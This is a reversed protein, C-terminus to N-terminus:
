ERRWQGYSSECWDWHKSPKERWPMIDDTEKYPSDNNLKNIGIFDNVQKRKIGRMVNIRKTYTSYYTGYFTEADSCIIQEVIASEIPKLNSHLHELYIVRYHKEIESFVSKDKEDTAIYLPIDNNFLSKLATALVELNSSSSSENPRVTIFDNRRIHIANYREKPKNALEYYKKDYDLAVNIIDKMNNRETKNGPYVSHWYHGFFSKEFHLIKEPTNLDILNRGFSFNLFDKRDESPTNGHFCESLFISPWEKKDPTIIKILDTNTLTGTYSNQLCDSQNIEHGILEPFDNIDCIDFYKSVVDRNFIEWPSIWTNMDLTTIHDVFIDKQLIISRKSAYAIALLIEFSM